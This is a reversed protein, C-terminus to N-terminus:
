RLKGRIKGLANAMKRLERANLSGMADRVRQMYLPEVREYLKRGKPALKVINYRRDNTHATRRVFGAKEM